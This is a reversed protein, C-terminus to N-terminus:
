TLPDSPIVRIMKLWPIFRATLWAWIVSRSLGRSIRRFVTHLAAAIHAVSNGHSPFQSAPVTGPATTEIDLEESDTQQHAYPKFLDTPIGDVGTADSDMKRITAIVEPVTPCDATVDIDQPRQTTRATSSPAAYGNMKQKFYAAM